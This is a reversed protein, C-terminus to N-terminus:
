FKMYLKLIVADKLILDKWGVVVSNDRCNIKKSTCLSFFNDFNKHVLPGVDSRQSHTQFKLGWWSCLSIQFLVDKMIATHTKVWVMECAFMWLFGYKEPHWFNLYLSLIQTHTCGKSFELDYAKIEPKHKPSAFFFGGVIYISISRLCESSIELCVDLLWGDFFNMKSTMACSISSIRHYSRVSSVDVFYMCGCCFCKNYLSLWIFVCCVPDSLLKFGNRLWCCVWILDYHLPEFYFYDKYVSSSYMKFPMTRIKMSKRLLASTTLPKVASNLLSSQRCLVHWFLWAHIFSTSM